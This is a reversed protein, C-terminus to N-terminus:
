LYGLSELQERVEGDDVDSSRQTAAREAGGGDPEEEIEHLLLELAATVYADITDFRTDPLRREVRDVVHDPIAVERTRDPTRECM